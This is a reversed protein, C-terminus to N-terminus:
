KKRFIILAIILAVIILIPIGFINTFIIVHDIWTLEKGNCYVAMCGLEEM